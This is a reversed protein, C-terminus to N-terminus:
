LYLKMKQYRKVAENDYERFLEKFENLSCNTSVVLETFDYYSDYYLLLDTYADRWVEPPNKLDRIRATVEAQNAIIEDVDAEFATDEFLKDLADDFDPFFVGASNLTYPDTKADRIEYICNHWVSQMLNACDEAVVAGWLMLDLVDELDSGYQSARKEEEEAEREAKNNEESLEALAQETKENEVLLDSYAQETKRKEELLSEYQAKYEDARKDARGKSSWLVVCLVAFVLTLVLLVPILPNLTRKEEM